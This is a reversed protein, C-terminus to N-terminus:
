FGSGSAIPMTLPKRGCTRITLGIKMNTERMFLELFQDIEDSNHRGLICGVCATVLSYKLKIKMRESKKVASKM